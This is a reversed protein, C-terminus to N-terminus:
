MVNFPLLIIFVVTSFNFPTWLLIQFIKENIQKNKMAKFSKKDLVKM